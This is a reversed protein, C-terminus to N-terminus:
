ALLGATFRVFNRRCKLWYTTMSPGLGVARVYASWQILV